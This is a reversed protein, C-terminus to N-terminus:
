RARVRVRTTRSSGLSYPFRAERRARARFRFSRSRNVRFRYRASYRGAANARVTKFTRWKGAEFAQLDVLKGSPPLGAGLVRGYFRATRGARVRRPKANITVGARTRLAVTPSCALAEDSAAARFAARLTRNVGPPVRFAWGGDGGVTVRGAEVLSGTGELISLQAGGAPAGAPTFAEGHLTAAGGFRVTRTRAHGFAATVRAASPSCAPAPPAGQEATRLYGLRAETTAGECGADLSAFHRAGGRLCRYVAVSDQDGPPSRFVFGYRGLVSTGECGGDLSLFYDGSGNRCGYLAQLNSGGTSLLFGLTRQYQFGAAVAGPTAWQAGSAAGYLHLGDGYTRLYGLLGEPRQGECDASSSAFHDHGVWNCRYVASTPETTPPADYAFGERGLVTRGECGPDLSLFRDAGANLCDYIAHRGDGGASLLFGLGFEYTAGPPAGGASVVHTGTSPIWFRLLAEGRGSAYGLLGERAQGECGPDGSAFHDARGPVICRHVPVSERDPPAAAFLFGIRGLSTQGECAPDLSLFHDEAGSLCSYLASRDPGGGAQLFGLSFEYGYGASTAGTTIWHTASTGNYYRNLAGPGLQTPADALAAAPLALALALALILRRVAGPYACARPSAGTPALRL